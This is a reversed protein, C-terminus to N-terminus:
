RKFFDLFKVENPYKIKLSDILRNLVTSDIFNEKLSYLDSFAEQFEKSKLNDSNIYRELDDAMERFVKDRSITDRNSVFNLAILNDHNLKKKYPYTFDSTQLSDIFESGEKFKGLTILLRIKLDVVAAKISDCQMCRNVIILASDLAAPNSRKKSALDTAKKFNDYCIIERDHPIHCSYFLIQGILLFILSLPKNM